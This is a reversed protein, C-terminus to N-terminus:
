GVPHWTADGTRGSIGSGVGGLRAVEWEDARTERPTGQQSDDSIAKPLVIKIYKDILAEAKTANDTISFCIESALKTAFARRFMATYESPTDNQYTYVIKLGSTDSLIRTGEVKVNAGIDSILSMEIYDTPKYYVVTMNDETMVLRETAVWYVSALDTAFTGSTHAVICVYGVGSNFVKDGIIYQTSTVWDTTTEWYLSALNSAFLTSTHAVLCTYYVDNYRVEDDVTYSEGAEWEDVDTTTMDILAYRKQAFTWAHEKLIEDRVEDYIDTIARQEEVDDSTTSLRRAGIQRLADNYITLKTVAM